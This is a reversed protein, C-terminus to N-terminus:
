RRKTLLRTQRSTRILRRREHPGIGAQAELVAAYEWLGRTQAEIQEIQGQLRAKKASLKDMKAQQDVLVLGSIFPEVVRIVNIATLWSLAGWMLINIPQPLDTQGMLAYLAALLSTATGVIGLVAFVLSYSLFFRRARGGGDPIRFALVTGLLLVPAVTVVAIYFSENM